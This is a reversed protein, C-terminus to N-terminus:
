STGSKGLQTNISTWLKRPDIRQKTIKSTWFMEKKSGFPKHQKNLSALGTIRDDKRESRHYRRELRRNLRQLQRCDKNCWVDPRRMRHMAQSLPALRDLINTITLNYTQMMEEADTQATVFATDWLPSKLLAM